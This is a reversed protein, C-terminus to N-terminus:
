LLTDHTVSRSCPDSKTEVHAPSSTERAALPVPVPKILDTCSWDRVVVVRHGSCGSLQEASLSSAGAALQLSLRTPNPELFGDVSSGLNLRHHLRRVGVASFAAPLRLGAVRTFSPHPQDSASGPEVGPPDV